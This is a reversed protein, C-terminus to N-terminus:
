CYCFQTQMIFFNFVDGDNEKFPVEQDISEAMKTQEKVWDNQLCVVIKKELIYLCVQCIQLFTAIATVDRLFHSGNYPSPYNHGLFVMDNEASKQELINIALSAGDPPRRHSPECLHLIKFYSPVASPMAAFAAIYGIFDEALSPSYCRGHELPRQLHPAAPPSENTKANM